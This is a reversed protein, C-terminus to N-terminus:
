YENTPKLLYESIKEIWNFAKGPNCKGTRSAEAAAIMAEARM